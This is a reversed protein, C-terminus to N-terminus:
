AFALLLVGVVVASIRAILSWRSLKSLSSIRGHKRLALRVLFEILPLYFGIAWLPALVSLKLALPSDRHYLSPM